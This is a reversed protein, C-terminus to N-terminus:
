RTFIEIPITFPVSRPIFCRVSDCAQYQLAGSITFQGNTVEPSVSVPLLIVVKEEYVLLTDGSTLVFSHGPPYRPADVNLYGTDSITITAPILYEDKVPNAQIHLGPKIITILQVTTSDGTAIKVVPSPDITVIDSGKSTESAAQLCGLIFLLFFLKKM